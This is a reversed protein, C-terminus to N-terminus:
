MAKLLRVVIKDIPLNVDQEQLDQLPLFRFLCEEHGQLTYAKPKEQLVLKWPTVPEVRYYVSIIQQGPHWVSEQFFDTTYFHSLVNIQLGTEELWERKLGDALGEGYELGGGPFKTFEFNGMREDSLLIEQHENIWLGYVRVNFPPM